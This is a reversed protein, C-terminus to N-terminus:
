LIAMISTHNCNCTAFSTFHLNQREIECPTFAALRITLSARKTILDKLLGVGTTVVGGPPTTVVPVRYEGRETGFQNRLNKQWLSDSMQDPIAEFFRFSSSLEFFPRWCDM